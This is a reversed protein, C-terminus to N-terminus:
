DDASEESPARHVMNWIARIVRSMQSATVAGAPILLLPYALVLLIRLPLAWAMPLPPLLFRDAAVVGAALAVIRLVRTVQWPVPYMRQSVVLAISFRTVFAGAMAWAAGVLGFPPILLVGLVVNVILSSVSTAALALGRGTFFVPQAVIIYLGQFFWAGVLLPVIPTASHYSRDTLLRLMLPAFLVLGVAMFALAAVILVYLRSHEARAQPSGDKMLRAMTPYTANGVAVMVFGLLHPMMDAIEFLGVMASSGLRTILWANAARAAFGSLTHPVFMLGLVLSSTFVPWRFGGTGKRWLMWAAAAATVALGMLVTAQRGFGQWGLWIVAVLGLLLHLGHQSISLGVARFAQEHLQAVGIGMRILAICPAAWVVMAWVLRTQLPTLPLNPLFVPALWVGALTLLTGLVAAQLGLGLLVTRVVVPRQPPELRFYRSKLASWLGLEVLVALPLVVQACLRVIGMQEPPLYGTFVPLLLLWLVHPSLNGLVYIISLRGIRGASGALRM